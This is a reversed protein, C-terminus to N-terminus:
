SLKAKGQETLWRGEWGARNEWVLDGDKVAEDAEGIIEGLSFRAAMGESNRYEVERLVEIRTPSFPNVYFRCRITNPTDTSM